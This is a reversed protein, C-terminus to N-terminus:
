NTLANTLKNLRGRLSGDIVQDGAYIIAGGLVEPDTVSELEIDRNFRKALAARMREAQDSELARASVVRVQLRQEAELKHKRYLATIEALLPLRRNAGLVGLFRGFGEDFRTGAASRLLDVAQTVSVQPNELLGAVREDAVMQTALDLMGQWQTLGDQGSQQALSFAAKAYPRALTTLSNM